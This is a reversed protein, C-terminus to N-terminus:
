KRWRDYKLLGVITKADLIEGRQVMQLPMTSRCSKSEIIEGLALRQDQKTLGTAM